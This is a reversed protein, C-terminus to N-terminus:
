LLALRARMVTRSRNSSVVLHRRRSPFPGIVLTRTEKREDSLIVQSCFKRRPWLDFCHVPLPSTSLQRPQKKWVSCARDFLSGVYWYASTLACRAQGVPPDLGSCSNSSTCHSRACLDKFPRPPTIWAQAGETTTDAAATAKDGSTEHQAQGGPKSSNKTSLDEKRSPETLLVLGGILILIGLGILIWRTRKLKVM